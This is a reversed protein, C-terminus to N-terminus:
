TSAQMHAFEVKIEELKDPQTLVDCGTYALMKAGFIMQDLAYPKLADDRFPITHLAHLEHTIPIYPHISPVRASVNGLDLSGQDSGSHLESPKVGNNFLNQNFLGSLVGNTQMEDYAFDDEKIQVTCGTQLAAGEAVRKVREKLENTYRRDAARVYFLASAYEPIINAAQGGNTIIGHIRADSRIQQRLANVGNFLQIIGDLANVGEHPSAAAHSPQGFYEFTIASMALSTGSQEYRNYPHIMMAVDCDDFLGARAMPVKAGDTEEAPTGYVRISGGTEHLIAKLGVAAALSMMAILHHGCAHGLHPLADYESLYAIVPGPKGSDYEALFSTPIHLLGRTITFGHQELCATLKEAAIYEENGLEPHHGIYSSIQKFQEEHAHIMEAITSKLRLNM